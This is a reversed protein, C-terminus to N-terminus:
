GERAARRLVRRDGIRRTLGDQDFRELLLQADRRGVGALDRFRALTIEGAARCEQVLLDRAVEYGGAGVAFGDGLRVLRGQAELFRALEADDVKAAAVGAAALEAELAAAAEARAGLSATAGPLSAVGGRREVPLLPLIAPAWPQAPLLEALALGPDLPSAEARRRLREEVHAATEALWAESFAWDGARRVARLGQELEAPSLLGRAALESVSVPAHVVAAVISAPDGRELLALREPDLRRPPAPDLVTAGGLTTEGRLVVRDGRVAVVATALRLQAARGGARVVRAPIRSTGHHVSLRAGDEIERLEELTVDLRYSSPFAGPVVLADGRRLDRREVGPLSVAVRQGAEAREVPLDHVQVSRVRVEAGGPEVRLVDGEGLTGSWLTGTAVTGIGRLSFVRDVFLRAPGSSVRGRVGDAARGLAARLEDLGAGTKASVAVAEAEPVLERAEDLALELTEEDVADAKTVAVVGASVGLLRLIALHEFTQPRAGEAADVVLLFLDIGTAGAVMTRVFREHGPVDVLSLRRGDPLELPAYGLDISIGRRREEPLRDTDKGTLARVLWTKGHDIHGATGVTLAM